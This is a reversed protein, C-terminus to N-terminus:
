SATGMDDKIEARGVSGNIPEDYCGDALPRELFIPHHTSTFARFAFM